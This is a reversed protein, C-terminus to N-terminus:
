ATPLAPPKYEFLGTNIELVAVEAADLAAEKTAYFAQHLPALEELDSALVEEATKEPGDADSWVAVEFPLDDPNYGMLNYIFSTFPDLEIVSVLENTNTVTEQTFM